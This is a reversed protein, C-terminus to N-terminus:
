FCYYTSSVHVHSSPFYSISYLFSFLFLRLFLFLHSCFSVSSHWSFWFYLHPFYYFLYSSSRSDLTLPLDITMRPVHRAKCRQCDLAMERDLCAFYSAWEHLKRCSIMVCTEMSIAEGLLNASEETQQKSNGAWNKQFFLSSSFSFHSFIFLLLPFSLRCVKMKRRGGGECQPQASDPACHNSSKGVAVTATMMPGALLGSLPAM